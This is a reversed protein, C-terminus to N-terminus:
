KIENSEVGEDGGEKRERMERKGVGVLRGGKWILSASGGVGAGWQRSRM